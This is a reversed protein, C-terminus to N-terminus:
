GDLQLGDPGLTASITRMTEEGCSRFDELMAAVAALDYAGLHTQALAALASLRAAGAMHSATKISLVVDMAAAHDRGQCAAHLRAYRADWLHLYNRVFRTSAESGMQEALEHLRARAMLPQQRKELTMVTLRRM